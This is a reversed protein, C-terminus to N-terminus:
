RHKNWRHFIFRPSSRARDTSEQGYTNTKHHSMAGEWTHSVPLLPCGGPM